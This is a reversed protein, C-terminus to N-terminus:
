EKVNVKYSITKEGNIFPLLEAAFDKESSGIIGQGPAGAYGSLIRFLMEATLEGAKKSREIAKACRLCDNNFHEDVLHGYRVSLWLLRALDDAFVKKIDDDAKEPDFLLEVKEKIM